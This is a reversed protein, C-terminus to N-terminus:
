DLESQHRNMWWRQLEETMEGEGSLAKMYASLKRQDSRHLRQQYEAISAKIKRLLPLAGYGPSPLDEERPLDDMSYRHKLRLSLMYLDSVIQDYILAIEQDEALLELEDLLSFRWQFFSPEGTGGGFAEPWQVVPNVIEELFYSDPMVKRITYTQLVPFTFLIRINEPLYRFDDIVCRVRRGVLEQSDEKKPNEMAIGKLKFL